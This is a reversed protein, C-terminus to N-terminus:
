LESPHSWLVQLGFCPVLKRHHEGSTHFKELYRCVLISRAVACLNAFPVSPHKFLKGFVKLTDFLRCISKNLPSIAQQLLLLVTICFRLSGEWFLLTFFFGPSNASSSVM